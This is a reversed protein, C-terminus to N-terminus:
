SRKKNRIPLKPFLKRFRVLHSTINGGAIVFTVAVIIMVLGFSERFTLSEGFVAIGFFIATVPELAGLIATPTSGIYQIAGTTCLFSIATPFVALALLNGWLYWQDPTNLVGSYLLRAVFLSLGFLLVYFTVKLTAVNKLSTQNIGVIYIAYSLSSAFVLLTGILSLTSGDESKYLLGIGGLALLMCVITQLALKEKFVMAMILAVMIPYVFLLTSAIGAAMYNYSLFLTLSSLAVLLGMIILPFTEKRQIKFTRGRAKIMIGLLPIAFLYRFFLVSDPDMGAKYLPLAFLPNMGYSAAAISGLIYGKAKANM